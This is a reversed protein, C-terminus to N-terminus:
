CIPVTKLAKTAQFLATSLTLLGHLHGFLSSIMWLGVLLHLLAGLEEGVEFLEQLHVSSLAVFGLHEGHDFFGDGKVEEAVEEGDEVFREDADVFRGINVAGDGVKSGEGVVHEGDKSGSLTLVDGGIWVLCDLGEDIKTSAMLIIEVFEDVFHVDM